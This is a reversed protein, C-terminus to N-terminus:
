RKGHFKKHVNKLERDTVHTYIQTTTISEHGLMAQVSRIDAGNRLLDTAFTHRLTHPTIKKTIGAETAYREVIRQISRPSLPLLDRHNKARDHGVFLYPSADMRSDIYNKVASIASESMFVVRHKSGKGKVTFEVRKLNVDKIRLESLESVRLGTSFLMELVARDRKGILGKADKTANIMRRLEEEELFEIKRTGTKALEIKDPLMTKVDRKALFKLFSRLAILHYNQTSKKLNVEDRGEVSRNLYLRYKRILEQDIKAPVPHKAWDAFRQLYFDYNRITRASRGREVELYELFLRIYKQLESQKTKPKTM